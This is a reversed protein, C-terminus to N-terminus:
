KTNSLLKYLFTIYIGFNLYSLCLCVVANSTPKRSNLIQYANDVLDLIVKHDVPNVDQPKRKPINLSLIWEPTIEETATIWKAIHKM